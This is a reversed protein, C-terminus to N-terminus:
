MFTTSLVNKVMALCLHLFSKQSTTAQIMPMVSTCASTLLAMIVALAKKVLSLLSVILTATPKMIPILTIQYLKVAAGTLTHDMIIPSLTSSNQITKMTGTTLYSAIVRKNKIYALSFAIIGAIVFLYWYHLIRFVWEMIDFNSKEEDPLIINNHLIDEQAM